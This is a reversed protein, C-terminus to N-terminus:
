LFEVVFCTITTNSIGVDRKIKVNTSTTVTARPLVRPFYTSENPTLANIITICKSPNVSSITVNTETEAGALGTNITQVKVGSEFEIVYYQITNASGIGGRIFRISTDSFFFGQTCHNLPNEGGNATFLLVSKTRDVATIAQSVDTINSPMSLEGSQINKIKAGGGSSNLGGFVVGKAM